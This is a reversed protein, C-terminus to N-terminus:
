PTPRGQGRNLRAAIEEALPKQKAALLRGLAEEVAAHDARAAEHLRSVGEDIEGLRALNIGLGALAKPYAPKLRLAERYHEAARAFHEQAEEAQGLNFFVIESTPPLRSAVEFQEAAERFKGQRLYVTGLNSYGYPSGPELERAKQFQAAAEDLRGRTLLATGYDLRIQASREDLELAEAYLAFAKDKDKETKKERELSEGLSVLVTPCKGVVEYAHTWLTVSSKWTQLQAVTVAALALAAGAGTALAVRPWARALEATGWCLAILLGIQPFYTYRDAYAQSGVQVLGIVPVLTGLYWLWGVLLYPARRWLAVAGATLAVLLVASGAVEMLRLEHGAYGHAPHPYYASLGAPWLTKTLYAVYSLSANEIRVAPTFKDLDGVAKGKSQAYFTVVSSAVVLVFLPLKEVVVRGWDGASRARALPWWDLVLLLFPLTVLMPKSLLSAAFAAVVALYRWLSPRKVYGAYAWLALLGFFVSLVDKRESVWAVSEVRLPHVAFLLAVAISHWYAGTLSRLALFLLAASAAHLLVSTLHFGFPNPSGDSKRSLSADLQLSLWTLPHWNAADFTTFAWGVGAVSLGSLVGQNAVVYQPDDYNVFGNETAPFFVALAVAALAAAALWDRRSPPPQPPSAPSM